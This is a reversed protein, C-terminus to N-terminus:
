GTRVASRCRASRHRSWKRVRCVSSRPPWITRDRRSRGHRRRPNPGPRRRSSAVQRRLAAGILDAVFDPTGLSAVQVGSAPTREVLNLVDSLWDELEQPTMNGTQEKNKGAPANWTAAEKLARVDAEYATAADRAIGAAYEVAEEHTLGSARGEVYADAVVGPDAPGYGAKGLVDQVPDVVSSIDREPLSTGAEVAKRAAELTYTQGPNKLAHKVADRKSAGLYGAEVAAKGVGLVREQEALTMPDLNKFELELQTRVLMDLTAGFPAVTAGFVASAEDIIDKGVHSNVLADTPMTFRNITEIGTNQSVHGGQVRGLVAMNGTYFELNRQIIKDRADQDKNKDGPINEGM